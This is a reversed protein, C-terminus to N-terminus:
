LKSKGKAVVGLATFNIRGIIIVPNNRKGPIFGISFPVGNTGM